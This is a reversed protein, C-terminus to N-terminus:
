NTGPNATVTRSFTQSEGSVQRPVSAFQTAPSITVM